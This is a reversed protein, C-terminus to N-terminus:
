QMMRFSYIKGLGSTSSPPLVGYEGSGAAAAPFTVEYMRSAIKKGDFPVLDRESGSQAHLIGGTVTRFERNDKNGRLHLLQYENLAVGDPAVILLKLPSALSTHSSAGPVHGNVDGHRIGATAITKLVGGSKWNVIEPPIEVWQGQKKAYVGADTPLAAEAPTHRVAVTAPPAPAAAKSVAPTLAAAGAKSPDLMVQVIRDSVNATKLAILQDTSLDLARGNKRIQQIIIDESLGAKALKIVDEDTLGNQTAASRARAPAQGSSVPIWAFLGIWLATFVRSSIAAPLRPARKCLM